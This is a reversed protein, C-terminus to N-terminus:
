VGQMKKLKITQHYFALIYLRVELKLNNSLNDIKIIEWFDSLTDQLINILKVDTQLTAINKQAKKLMTKNSEM